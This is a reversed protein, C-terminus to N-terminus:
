LRCTSLIQSLRLSLFFDNKLLQQNIMLFANQLRATSKAAFIVGPSQVLAVLNLNAISSFVCIFICNQLFFIRINLVCQM